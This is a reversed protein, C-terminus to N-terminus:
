HASLAKSSLRAAGKIKGLVSKRIKWIVARGDWCGLEAANEWTAVGQGAFSFVQVGIVSAIKTFNRAMASEVIGGLSRDNSALFIGLILPM